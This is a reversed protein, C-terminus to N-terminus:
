QKNLQYEAKGFALILTFIPNLLILGITFGVGQGFAKALKAYAYITIGLCVLAGIGPIVAAFYGLILWPTIGAIKFLVITNYVPILAKWGDEGAKSFLKWNAIAIVVYVAVVFMMMGMLMSAVMGLFSTGLEAVGASDVATSAYDQMMSLMEQDM